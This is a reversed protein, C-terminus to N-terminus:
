MRKSTLLLAEAKAGLYVYLGLGILLGVAALMMWVAQILYQGDGLASKFMLLLAEISVAILIAAIFRTITRRTSSHRFIDKHMLVEEELTTKGLDFVALGLTLFIIVGFPKLHRDSDSHEGFFLQASESFASYLLAGVVVFLGAVIVGYVGKFLPQFNRRATDGMMFEIIKALDIDLALYGHKIPGKLPWRTAATVCLKRNASSLYPETVIIDDAERALRYYPRQSRDKGAGTFAAPHKSHVAVNDGLQIGDPDLMYLLELFPYTESLQEMARCQILKDDFVHEEGISSLVSAMLERIAPQFERYREIVSIYSANSM